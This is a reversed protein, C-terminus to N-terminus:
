DAVSQAGLFRRAPPGAPRESVVVNPGLAAFSYVRDSLALLMPDHTAIVVPGRRKAEQLLEALRAVAEADLGISPEDLFLIPRGSAIARCISLKQLEGKSLSAVLQDGTRWGELAALREAPAIWEVLRGAVVADPRFLSLNEMLTGDFVVPESGAFAIDHPGLRRRTSGTVVAAEGAHLPVAGALAMLWTTKGGGNPGELAVIEGRSARFSPISLVRQDGLPVRVGDAAIESPADARDGVPALQPSGDLLGALRRYCPLLTPIGVTMVGVLRNVPPTLLGGLGILTFLSGVSLEGELV